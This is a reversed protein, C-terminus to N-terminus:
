VAVDKAQIDFSLYHGSIKHTGYGIPIRTGIKTTNGPAGLYKSAPPDGPGTDYSGDMQPAPSMMELVGGALMLVGSFLISGASISGLSGLGIAGNTFLFEPQWVALAIMAAGLAIKFFGGGSKGGLMAPVVHLESVQIPSKLSDETPHGLVKVVIEKTRPTRRLAPVQLALGKLAELPTDVDFTHREPCVWALYGHLIVTVKM